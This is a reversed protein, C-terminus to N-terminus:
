KVSTFGLKLLSFHFCSEIREIFYTIFILPYTRKLIIFFLQILYSTYKRKPLVTVILFGSLINLGIESHSLIFIRM